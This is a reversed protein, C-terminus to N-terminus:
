DPLRVNSMKRAKEEVHSHTALTSNQLQLRGWEIVQQDQEKQVQRLQSFILRSQHKLYVVTVASGMVLILLLMLWFRDTM